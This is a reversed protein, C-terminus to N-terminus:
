RQKFLVWAAFARLDKKPAGQFAIIAQEASKIDSTVISKYLRDYPDYDAAHRKSQMASFVGAFDQIEQPFSRIM